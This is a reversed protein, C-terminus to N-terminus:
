DKAKINFLYNYIWIDDMWLKTLVLWQKTNKYLSILNKSRKSNFWYDLNKKIFDRIEKVKDYSQNDNQINNLVKQFMKDYLLDIDKDVDKDLHTIYLITEFVLYNKVFDDMNETTLKELLTTMIEKFFYISKIDNIFNRYTENFNIFSLNRSINFYHPKEKIDKLIKDVPNNKIVNKLLIEYFEKKLYKDMYTFPNEDIKIPYYYNSYAYWKEWVIEDNIELSDWKKEIYKKTYKEIDVGLNIRSLIFWEEEEFDWIKSKILLIFEDSLNSLTELWKIKNILLNNFYFWLKIMFIIKNNNVNFYKNFLKETIYHNDLKTKVNNYIITLEEDLIDDNDNIFEWIANISSKLSIKIKEKKFSVDNIISTNDIKVLSTDNNNKPLSLFEKLLKNYTEIEGDYKLHYKLVSNINKFIEPKVDWIVKESSLFKKFLIIFWKHKLEPSSPKSIYIQFYHIFIKNIISQPLNSLKDNIFNFLQFWDAKSFFNDIVYIIFLVNWTTWILRFLEEKTFISLDNLTETNIDFLTLSKNEKEKILM